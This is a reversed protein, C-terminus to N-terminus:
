HFLKSDKQHFIVDSNNVFNMNLYHLEYCCSRSKGTINSKYNGFPNRRYNFKRFNFEEELPRLLEYMKVFDKKKTPMDIKSVRFLERSHMEFGIQQVNKLSNEQYITKLVDWESYEIDIKVYNIPRQFPLVFPFFDSHTKLHCSCYKTGFMYITLLFVLIVICFM